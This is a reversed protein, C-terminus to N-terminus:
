VIRENENPGGQGPPGKRKDCPVLSTKSHTVYPVYGRRDVVHVVLRVVSVGVSRHQRVDHRSVGAQSPFIREEQDARVLVALLVQVRGPPISQVGLALCVQHDAPKLVGPLTQVHLIVVEDAGGLVAVDADDGCYQLVQPVLALDVKAVVLAPVADGVLAEPRLFVDLVFCAWVAAPRDLQHGLLVVEESHALVLVPEDIVDLSM